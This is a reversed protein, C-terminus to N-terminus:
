GGIGHAKKKREKEKEIQVHPHFYELIFLDSKKHIYQVYLVGVNKKKLKSYKLM